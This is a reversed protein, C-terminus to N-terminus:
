DSSSPSKSFYHNIVDIIQDKALKAMYRDAGAEMIKDENEKGALSTVAVLPTQANKETQRVRKILEIGDMNPMEIDTLILDFSRQTNELTELAKVGDEATVTQCGTERVFRSIQERYFRSDDVVLVNFPKKKEGTVQVTDLVWEPYKEKALEFLDVVLSTENDIILSGLVGKECFTKDNIIQHTEVADILESAILGIEQGNVVFVFIFFLETESSDIGEIQDLSVIPLSSDQYRVSKRDMLIELNSANTQEIREILSLPLTFKEKGGNSILLFHQSENEKDHDTDVELPEPQSASSLEMHKCIGLIDLILAVHGDGRITVGSYAKCDQIFKGLPKVVIEESDLFEDVIIGYRYNDASVIAINVHNKKKKQKELKEEENSVQDEIGFVEKLSVLPFISDRVRLFSSGRVYQIKQKIEEASIEVLEELNVQPIAFHDNGNKVILSPIIALTLPLKIRITSGEGAVSEIDVVGGLKTFNTYVVDMGVGRGSVETVKKALSFGAGFILRVLERDSMADLTSKDVTGEALAKAKIAQPDIGKGNDIVEVIVQGGQHFARLQIKGTKSKGAKVREEPSEIGHDVANRILHTLPDNISEIITKDLEVEKGEIEIQISKDLQKALDRVVRTFRNFVNGIPQMRTSMIAVQLDSTILDVRQCATAIKQNDESRFSEILQNRTLVMESALTMLINLTKLPVRLTGEDEERSPAQKRAAAPAEAVEPRLEEKTEEVIISAEAAEKKEVEEQNSSLEESPKINESSAGEEIAKLESLIQSIDVDNSNQFDNVLQKLIDVASLIPSIVSADPILENHRVKNLINEQVHALEKINNLDFFGAGGKISHLARFVKNVLDLDFSEGQEEITLLDFEIGELHEKSEQFYENLIEDDETM